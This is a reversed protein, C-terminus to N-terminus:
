NAAICRNRGARKAEYLAEDARSLWSTMNEGPKLEAIGISVTITIARGEHWTRAASLSMRIREATAMAQDRSNDPLCLVLEEGGYRGILDGARLQQCIIGAASRLM